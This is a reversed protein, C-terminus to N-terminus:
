VPGGLSSLTEITVPCNRATMATLPSTANNYCGTNFYLGRRAGRNCQMSSTTDESGTALPTFM